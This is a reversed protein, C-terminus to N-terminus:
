KKRIARVIISLIGTLVFTIGVCIWGWVASTLCGVGISIICGGVVVAAGEDETM